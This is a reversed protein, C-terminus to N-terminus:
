WRTGRRRRARLRRRCPRWPHRRCPHCPRCSTVVADATPDRMRDQVDRVGFRSSGRPLGRPETADTAPGGCAARVLDLTMGGFPVHPIGTPGHPHRPSLGTRHPATRRRHLSAPRRDAAIPDLRRGEVLDFDPAFERALTAVDYRRVALGACKEPGEPAFTAVILTGGPESQRRQSPGIRRGTM